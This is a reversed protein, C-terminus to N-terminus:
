PTCEYISIPSRLHGIDAEDESASMLRAHLQGTIDADNSPKSPL